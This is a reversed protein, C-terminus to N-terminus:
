CGFNPYIVQTQKCNAPCINYLTHIHRKDTSCCTYCWYNGPLMDRMVYGAGLGYLVLCLGGGGVCGNALGVWRECWWWCCVRMRNVACWDTRYIVLMQKAEVVHVTTDVPATNTNKRWSVWNNWKVMLHEAKNDFKISCRLMKIMWFILKQQILMVHNFLLYRRVIISENFMPNVYNTNIKAANETNKYKRLFWCGDTM